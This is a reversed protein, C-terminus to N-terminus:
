NIMQQQFRGYKDIGKQTLKYSLEVSIMRDYYSSDYDKSIRVNYTISIYDNSWSAYFSGNDKNLNDIVSPKGLYNVLYGYPVYKESALDKAKALPDNYSGYSGYKLYM